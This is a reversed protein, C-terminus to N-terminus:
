LLLKKLPISQEKIIIEEQDISVNSISLKTNLTEKNIIDITANKTSSVKPYIIITVTSPSVNYDLSDVVSEYNLSVKHTGSELNSIDVSVTGKSLQKALYMDVKRGILTVDATEPLGEVVYTETNYIAEVKQEHLVEAYSDVLVISKNDVIIFAVIALVLSIFILTNKRVLWREFKDTRSGMKESLILIFKTIPNIIKKDILRALAKIFLIIKNTRKKSKNKKMM